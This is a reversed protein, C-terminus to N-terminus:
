YYIKKIISILTNLEEVDREVSELLTVQLEDELMFKEYTVEHYQFLSKKKGYRNLDNIAKNIRQMLANEYTVDASSSSSPIIMLLSAKQLARILEDKHEELVFVRAKKVPVIM